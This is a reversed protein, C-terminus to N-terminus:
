AASIGVGPSMKQPHEYRRKHAEWLRTALEGTALVGHDGAGSPLLMPDQPLPAVVPLVSPGQTPTVTVPPVYSMAPPVGPGQTPMLTVPPVYAPVYAAAPPVGPGQTPTVMVPPIYSMAPPVGPGQTPMLMVPPVYAPIYAAAPPVGPGQSLM